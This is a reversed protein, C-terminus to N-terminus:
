KKSLFPKKFKYSDSKKLFNTIKNRIRQLSNDVSKNTVDLTDAIEQYSKDKRYELFVNYELESFNKEIYSTLLTFKQKNLLLDLPNDTSDKNTFIDLLNRESESKYLPKDLSMSSNLPEKKKRTAKKLASIINRTICIAAFSKFSSSNDIQYDRIAKYLGIMGEQIVDSKDGNPLYYSRSKIYVLYQYREILIKEAQKINKRTLEILRNDNMDQYNSKIEKAM